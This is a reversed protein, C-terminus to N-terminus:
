SHASCSSGRTKWHPLTNASVPLNATSGAHCVRCPSIRSRMWFLQTKIQLTPCSSHLPLTGPHRTFRLMNLGSAKCEASRREAGLSSASTVDVKLYASRQPQALRARTAGMWRLTSDARSGNAGEEDATTEKSLRSPNDTSLSFM